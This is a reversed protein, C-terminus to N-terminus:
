ETGTIKSEMNAQIKFVFASFDESFPDIMGIDSQRATPAYTM